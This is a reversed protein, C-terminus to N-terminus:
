AQIEQYIAKLKECWSRKSFHAEVRAQYRAGVEHARDMLQIVGQAFTKPDEHSPAAFGHDRDPILDRIGDVAFAAVATAAWGAEILNIPLGESLSPSLLLDFGAMESGISQRYGAFFVSSDLGLDAAKAKLESELEGTGFCILVPKPGDWDQLLIRLAEFAYAHNKEVALRGVMGFVTRGALSPLTPIEARWLSRVQEAVAKRDQPTIKKRDTGNLHVAIAQPPVGRNILQDRDSTCVVLIKKMRPLVLKEYIWAYLRLRKSKNFARVGHHTSLLRITKDKRLAWWAYLASKPGHTHVLVEPHSQFLLRLDRIAKSDFRRSVEVEHVPFGFNVFYDRVSRGAGPSRVEQLLVIETKIQYDQEVQRLPSLNPGILTEPGSVISANLVHFVRISKAKM